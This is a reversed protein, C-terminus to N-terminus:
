DTVKVRGAATRAYADRNYMPECLIAPLIFDGGYAAQLRVKFTRTSNRPLDFYTLIRDDRIDQHLFQNNSNNPSDSFLRENYIEWGSPIIHTLAVDTYDTNPSLNTVKIVATLDTGKQVQTITTGSGGSHNYTVELKINRNTAPTLDEDPQSQSTLAVYLSGNGKNKIVINGNAQRVSLAQQFMSKASNVEHSQGQQSWAFQMGKSSKAAMKGMAVLAFATSQTEFYNENQLKTSIRRAQEFAEKEKNMLLLTQLIMAEDRLSSGFTTNSANYGAISTPQKNILAQAVQQKGCLAYAAALCWKAQLSLEKYEKLRNMAGYEPANALALSYLRYAQELDSQYYYYRGNANKQTTRWNQAQKKQYAKWKNLVTAHVDYGKEKASVLFCGVYSSLWENATRFGDWYAFGGNTLQRGYLSSIANKINKSNLESEAKSLEKLQDVYLLPYAVSTIQETCRHSYNYLFEMRRSLDAAPITSAELTLKRNSSGNGFHYPIEVQQGAAVLRTESLTAPPNPNRIEIHVVEKSTNGSGNATITITETGTTASSRLKFYVMKDGISNFTVSKSKAGEIALKGTTSVTVTANKVNKEMAFVNVPLDIEERTSIVRPLSSLIMLPAKVEINKEANGYSGNNGAVVM